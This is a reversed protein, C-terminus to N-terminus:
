PAFMWGTKIESIGTPSSGTESRARLLSSTHTTLSTESLTETTDSLRPTTM